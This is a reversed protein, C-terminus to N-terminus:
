VFNYSASEVDGQQLICDAMNYNAAIRYRGQPFKDIYNKLNQQAEKLKGNILLREAAAFLLSDQMNNEVQVPNKLSGSFAIFEDVKNQDVSISRLANYASHAEETGPFQNLIAKFSEQALGTEGTNYYVLALDSM